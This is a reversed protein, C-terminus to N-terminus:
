TSHSNLEPFRITLVCSAGIPSPLGHAILVAGTGTPLTKFLDPSARFQHADRTTGEGVIQASELEKANTIRQTVKQIEKTGFCRAFFEASDPDNLRLIIKTASNDTIRNLFGPSIENVDGVSQHSFHLAFGASRAKSILDAFEICAFTAFEDFYVPVIKKNFKNPGRHAQGALFNLHNIVLKGVTSAVQPSLLSQLRFYIIAGDYADSLNIKEKSSLSLIESLHGTTLTFVQDRLGSIDQFEKLALAEPFEKSIVFTSYSDPTALYKAVDLLTPNRENIEFYTQFIRQLASFAKSKYYEESWKLSSFLRQAAESPTGIELPNYSLLENSGLDFIKLKDKPVWKYLQELFSYDGKADLIISGLGREIDQKLFNLIVSETKGSGTAGLVHIHRTRISDSIYIKENLNIEVGMSISREDQQLLLKPLERVGKLRDKNAKAWPSYCSFAFICLILIIPISTIILLVREASGMSNYINSLWLVFLISLIFILFNTDNDQM